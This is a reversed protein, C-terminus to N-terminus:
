RLGPLEYQAQIHRKCVYAIGLTEALIYRADPVLPVTVHPKFKTLEILKGVGHSQYALREVPLHAVAALALRCRGRNSPVELLM